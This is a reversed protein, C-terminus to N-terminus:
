AKLALRDQWPVTRKGESAPSNGTDRYVSLKVDATMMDEGVGVQDFKEVELHGHQWQRDNGVDNLVSDQNFNLNPNKSTSLVETRAGHDGHNALAKSGLPSPTYRARKKLKYHTQQSSAKLFSQYKRRLFKVEALLALSRQKTRVLRKKKAETEQLLDHYDRRLARFRDAGGSGGRETPLATAPQPRRKKGSSRRVLLTEGGADMEGALRPSPALLGAAASQSTASASAPAPAPLALVAAAASPPSPIPGSGSPPSSPALLGPPPPPTLVARSSDDGKRGPEGAIDDM